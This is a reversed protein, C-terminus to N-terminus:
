RNLETLVLEYLQRGGFSPLAQNNVYFTPTQAVKLTRIDTAEQQLLQDMKPTAMVQKAIDLNLGREAAIKWAANIDPKHHSAWTEQGALLGELVEKYLNQERAAELMRIVTDSGHHFAAYRLVLRVDEPHRELIEKVFPYFAKCAECAPDFFEVITVKANDPGFSPSYDREYVNGAVEPVPEPSDIQRSQYFYLSVLSVLIIFALAVPVKSKM